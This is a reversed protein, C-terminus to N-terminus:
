KAQAIKGAELSIKDFDIECSGGSCALEQSGQGRDEQEYFTLKSFDVDPMSEVIAEYQAETIEEYPALKYNGGDYPLFSLGTVEDFHEWLWEGVADWEDDRVYITASQNHGRNSLWSNVVELYRNCQDIATEADRLVAGEPSKVPFEAVWTPVDEPAWDAFQNDPSVPVGADRILKFLPDTSAVRVRRIYFKAFRPHFGSACDLLQSSNGSPKGCTIAVPMNVCLYATAEAATERAVKNFYTMAELDRSLTPNDCQGTIDVGLLRDEDCVEKWGSRLYPFHTFTAQIAGIWAAIRVKEAFSEVTDDARMVAASLNCQYTLTSGFVGMHREPEEFCFTHHLGPLEEIDRITQFKSKFKPKHGGSTDLRHCPIDACDTIDVYWLDRKRVGLNTKTGAEAFLRITSRIGCRTLLLQIKRARDEGSLYLRVGGKGMQSGDADLWGALFQLISERSWLFLDDLADAENKLASIMEPDQDPCFVTTMKLALNSANAVHPTGRVGAVPMVADKEGWLGTYVRPNPNGGGSTKRIWGDGVAAGATYAHSDEIVEGEDQHITFPETAWRKNLGADLFDAVTMVRWPNKTQRTNRNSVSFRHYATTDLYSGDSFHVRYLKQGIGTQFPRVESWREGNWVEVPSGVADKIEILGQRTILPTDGAVCFQGSGGEGTWPDVSRRFRLSIEGCNHVYLGNADFANLGPISCDYVERNEVPLLSEVRATFKERNPQRRYMGLLDALLGKKASETFGVVEEFRFLNDNSIVLEHQAKCWYPAHGGKGDPLNRYGADRRNKYITSVIGLRLLMRQAGELTNLNSQALRVSVGKEQTGQVSGDADFLGCLFGATFELSESEMKPTITKDGPAMGYSDEALSGLATSSVQWFGNPTNRHPHADTRMQFGADKLFGFARNAQAEAEDGWFRLHGSDKKDENQTFTGDGLLSGLLWGKEWSVSGEVDLELNRHNNLRIHDGPQLDNAEVWEFRSFRGEQVVRCVQHNGTLELTYGETTRLQYVPKEGTSWFGDETSQYVAGDVVAAFPAGILSKVQMPGELTNVWSEATICPNIRCEGKPRAARRWFNDILFGREGSGSQALAEWEKDFTERSPKELYFASNNAMYRLKPFEGKSFDKAHRMEEDDIDSVSILAARRVGGAMVIEGIMCAIDHAEIPRLKRGAAALITEEAFEFLRMLPEPGSARGGKIKLPAGAPRVDSFDFVVRNGKFWNTLGFRFANAWGETSDGVLHPVENGTLVAVPPLNNVFQSEVSYGIGTGMMLIYLLEVFSPLSDLPVFACNYMCTNDRRAAEGASWLARMSPLVRMDLIAHRIDMLAHAPVKREAEIFDIYRNVTEDWRERRGLDYDWRSYTRTYVFESLLNSFGGTEVEAEQMSDDYFTPLLLDLRLDSM